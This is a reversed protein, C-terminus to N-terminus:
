AMWSDSFDSELNQQMLSTKQRQKKGFHTPINVLNFKLYILKKLLGFTMYKELRLGCLSSKEGWFSMEIAFTSFHLKIQNIINQRKLNM